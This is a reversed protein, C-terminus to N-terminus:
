KLFSPFDLTPIVSDVYRYSEKFGCRRIELTNLLLIHRKHHVYVGSSM